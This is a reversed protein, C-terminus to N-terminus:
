LNEQCGIEPRSALRDGQLLRVFIICVTALRQHLDRIHCSTPGLLCFRTRLRNATKIDRATPAPTGNSCDVGLGRWSCTAHLRGLGVGLAVLGASGPTAGTTSSASVWSPASIAQCSGPGAVGLLMGSADDVATEVKDGNASAGPDVEVAKSSGVSLADGATVGFSISVAVGGGVAVARGDSTADDVGVDVTLTAGVAWDVSDDLGPAVEETAPAGVGGRVDVVKAVAAM